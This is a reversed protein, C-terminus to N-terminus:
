KFTVAPGSDPHKAEGKSVVNVHVQKQGAQSDGPLSCSVHITNLINKKISLTENYHYVISM